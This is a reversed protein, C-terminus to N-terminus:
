RGRAGWHIQPGEKAIRMVDFLHGVDGVFDEVGFAPAGAHVFGAFTEVGAGDMFFVAPRDCPCDKLEVLNVPEAGGPHVVM